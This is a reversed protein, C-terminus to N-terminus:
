EYETTIIWNKTHKEPNYLLFSTHEYTDLNMLNLVDSMNDREKYDWQVVRYRGKPIVKNVPYIDKGPKVDQPITVVGYVEM